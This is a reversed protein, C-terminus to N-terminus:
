QGIPEYFRRDPIGDSNVEMTIPIGEPLEASPVSVVYYRHFGLLLFHRWASVIRVKARAALSNCILRFPQPSRTSAAILVVPDQDQGSLRELRVRQRELDRSVRPRRFRCVAKAAHDGYTAVPGSRRGRRLRHGAGATRGCYAGAVERPDPHDVHM